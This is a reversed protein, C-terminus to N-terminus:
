ENQAGGMIARLEELGRKYGDVVLIDGAKLLMEGRPRHFWMGERKVSQVYIGHTDDLALEDLTKGDLVSGPEVVLRAVIDEADRMVSTMIEHTPLGRLQVQAMEWAADAIEEAAFVVGVLGWKRNIDVDPLSMVEKLVRDCDEDVRQELEEVEQALESDQYTVSAYALSIMFESREKLELLARALGTEPKEGSYTSPLTPGGTAIELFMSTEKDSGRVFVIDGPCITIDARPNVTWETGRRLAIVDVNAGLEEWVYDITRCQLVSEPAVKARVLHEEVYNFVGKILPDVPRGKHVLEAIDAAADSIRNASSAVRFLGVAAEADDKDRVALSLTMLLQYGFRDVQEELEMVWEILEEDSFLLASYSLDLMLDSYTKMNTLLERVSVPEFKVIKREKRLRRSM